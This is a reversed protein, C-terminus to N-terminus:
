MGAPRHNIGPLGLFRAWRAVGESSCEQCRGPAAIKGLLLLRLRAVIQRADQGEGGVLALPIALEQDAHGVLEGLDLLLHTQVCVSHSIPKQSQRLLHTDSLKGM